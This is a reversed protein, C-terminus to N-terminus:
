YLPPRIIPINRVVLNDCVLLSNNLELLDFQRTHNRALGDLNFNFSVDSFYVHSKLNSRIQDVHTFNCINYSEWIRTNVKVFSGLYPHFEVLSDSTYFSLFWYFRNIPNLFKNFKLNILKIEHHGGYISTYSYKEFLNRFYFKPSVLSLKTEVFWMFNDVMVTKYLFFIVM